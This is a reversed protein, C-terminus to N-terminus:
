QGVLKESVRSLTQTASNITQLDEKYIQYIKLEIICYSVHIRDISVRVQAAVPRMPWQLYHDVVCATNLVDDIQIMVSNKLSSVPSSKFAFNAASSPRLTQQLHHCTCSPSGSRWGIQVLPRTTVSGNTNTRPQVLSRNM